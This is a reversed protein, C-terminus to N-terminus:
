EMNSLNSADQHNRLVWIGRFLTTIKSVEASKIQKDNLMYLASIAETKHLLNYTGALNPGM